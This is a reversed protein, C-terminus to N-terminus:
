PKEKSSVLTNYRRSVLAIKRYFFFTFCLIAHTLACAYVDWAEDPQPVVNLSMQPQNNIRTIIARLHQKENQRDNNQYECASFLYLGM